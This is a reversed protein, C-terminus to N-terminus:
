RPRARRPEPDRRARRKVRVAPRARRGAAPPERRRPRGGPDRRAARRPGAPTSVAMPAGTRHPEGVMRCGTASEAGTAPAVSPTWAEVANEALCRALEGLSGAAARDAEDALVLAQEVRRTVEACVRVAGPDPPAGTAPPNAHGNADISMGVARALGAADDLLARAQRVRDSLGCLMQDCRLAAASAGRLRRDLDDCRSLAGLAADGSWDLGLRRRATAIDDAREGLRGALLRFGVGAMVLQGPDLIRLGLYTVM